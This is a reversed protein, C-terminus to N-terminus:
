FVEHCSGDCEVCELEAVDVLEVECREESFVFFCEEVFVSVVGNVCDGVCPM